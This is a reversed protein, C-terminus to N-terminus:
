PFQFCMKPTKLNHFVSNHPMKTILCENVLGVQRTLDSKGRTVREKRKKKKKLNKEGKREKQREEKKTRWNTKKKKKVEEKEGKENWNM